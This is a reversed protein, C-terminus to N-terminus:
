AMFYVHTSVKVGDMTVKLAGGVRDVATGM